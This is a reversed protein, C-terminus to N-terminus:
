ETGDREWRLPIGEVSSYICWRSAGCTWWARRDSETACCTTMCALYGVTLSHEVCKGDVGKAANRSDYNWSVVILKDPDYNETLVEHQHRTSQDVYMHHTWIPSKENLHDCMDAYSKEVRIYIYM